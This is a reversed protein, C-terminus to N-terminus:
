PRLPLGAAQYAADIIAMTAVSDAPPTRNTPEGRTAALFARLQYTYTPEGAVKEHRRRGDATVTVRHFFQPAVFNLVRM